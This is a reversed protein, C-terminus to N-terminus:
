MMQYITAADKFHDLSIDYMCFVAILISAAPVSANAEDMTNSTM